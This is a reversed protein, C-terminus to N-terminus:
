NYSLEPNDLIEFFFFFSEWVPGSKSSLSQLVSTVSWLFVPSCQSLMRQYPRNRGPKDQASALQHSCPFCYAERDSELHTRIANHLVMFKVPLDRM